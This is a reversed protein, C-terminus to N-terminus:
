ASPLRIWDNMLCVSAKCTITVDKTKEVRFVAM